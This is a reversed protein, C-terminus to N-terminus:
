SLRERTIQFSDVSSIMPLSGAARSSFRSYRDGQTCGHFPYHTTSPSAERNHDPRGVRGGTARPSATPLGSWLLTTPTGLPKHSM